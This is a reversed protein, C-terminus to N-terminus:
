YVDRKYRKEKKLAEIYEKAQEPTKGGHVEAIKNLAADVDAAMKNKDGCVFFDALGLDVRKQRGCATYTYSRDGNLGRHSQEVATRAAADLRAKDIEIELVAGAGVVKIELRAEVKPFDFWSLLAETATCVALSLLLRNYGGVMHYRLQATLLVLTILFAILYRPDVGSARRWARVVVNGDSVAAHTAGSM